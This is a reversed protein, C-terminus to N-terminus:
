EKTSEINDKYFEVFDPISLPKSFLYGQGYLCHYYKLLKMQDETEIGEALTSTNDFTNCMEITHEIIIKSKENKMLSDILSKDFKVEHFDMSSLISLNAYKAGFDDLSVLFGVKMLDSVIKQLVELNINSVSETIELQIYKPSISYERCVALLHNVIDYELLTIRSLNIAIPIIAYGKEKWEQLMRCVVDLVFFDIHRIIGDTEYAPIFHDPTVLKGDDDIYRVLAEASIVRRTKLEVKPQLLVTFRDNNISDLLKRTAICRYKNQNSTLTNYYGQKDIYMLEDVYKVQNVIDQSEQTWIAGISLSFDNEKELEKRLNLIKTDFEKKDINPYIAIFEDGGIRYTYHNFYEKLLDAAKIILSDGYEHGYTDNAYKLGNLDVYVMGIAVPPNNQLEKLVHIYKNRNYLSTLTDTYSLRQLDDIMRRKQLDDLIFFPITHLLYSNDINETPDDVGLFGIIKGEKILPAAMLSDIGQADLIQYSLSNLDGNTELSSIIFEGEQEFKEVWSSVAVYPIDQLNDIEKSVGKACWEYTNYIYTCEENFEFIYARNAKHFDGIISLLKNIAQDINTEESLTKICRITTEEITLQKRLAKMEKQNKTIDTSMELRYLSGEVNVLTDKLAFYKQLAENHHVWHYFEGEKLKHNTCFECPADKGQLLKYCKYNRYEEGQIHFADKASKNLYILDYSRPDTMYCLEDDSDMILASLDQYNM